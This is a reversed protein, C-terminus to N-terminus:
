AEDDHEGEDEGLARALDRVAPTCCELRGFARRLEEAMTLRYGIRLEVTLTRLRGVGALDDHRAREIVAALPSALAERAARVLPSTVAEDGRARRAQEVLEVLNAM